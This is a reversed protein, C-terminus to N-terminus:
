WGTACCRHEEPAPLEAIKALGPDGGARFNSTVNLPLYNTILEGAQWGDISKKLLRMCGPRRFSKGRQSPIEGFRRASKKVSSMRRSSQVCSGTRHANRLKARQSVGRGIQGPRRHLKRGHINDLGQRLRAENGRFRARVLRRVDGYGEVRKEIKRAFLETM